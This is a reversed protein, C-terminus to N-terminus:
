LKTKMSRVECDVSTIQKAGVNIRQGQLMQAIAPRSLHFPGPHSVTMGGGQGSRTAIRYKAITPAAAFTFQQLITAGGPLVREFNPNPIINMSQLYAGSSPSTLPLIYSQVGTQVPQFLHQGLLRAADAPPLVARVIDQFDTFGPYARRTMTIAHLEKCITWLQDRTQGRFANVALIRTLKETEHKESPTGAMATMTFDAGRLGSTGQFKTWDWPMRRWDNQSTRRINPEQSLTEVMGETLLEYIELGNSTIAHILEHRIGERHQDLTPIDTQELGLAIGLLMAPTKKLMRSHLSSGVLYEQMQLGQVATLSAHDPKVQKPKAYLPIEDPIMNAIDVATTARIADLEEQVVQRLRDFAADQWGDFGSPGHPLHTVGFSELVIPMNGKHINPTTPMHM